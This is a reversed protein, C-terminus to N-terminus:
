ASEGASSPAPPTEGNPSAQSGFMQSQPSAQSGFMQSQPSAQSGLRQRQPRVWTELGRSRHLAYLGLLATIIMPVGDRLLGDLGLLAYCLLPQAILVVVSLAGILWRAWTRGVVVFFSGFPVVFGVALFLALWTALLALTVPLPLRRGDFLTGIAVLFPILLLAGYALVAVRATLVWGPVHRRMPRASLHEDVAPSKYLLWVVAACLVALVAFGAIVAPQPILSGERPQALRAVAFVTTVALILGFPRAVSRGYRVARMLFLFGIVRLLAWLTRVLLSFGPEDVSLLNLAEVVVVTIATLAILRRLRRSAPTPPPPRELRFADRLSTRWGGREPIRENVVGGIM